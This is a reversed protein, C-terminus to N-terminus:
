RLSEEAAVAARQKFERWVSDPIPEHPRFEEIAFSRRILTRADDLGDIEGLAIMQACLNGLASAEVPGASVPLQCANACLRNLFRNQSGGGVIRIRTLRRGRLSELEEKVQRYSLALSEYACRVCEAASEPRPQGSEACYARMARRMSAPNLFRADDPNVISRWPAASEALAVLADGDAIAFEQCLRQVIWLGMINKLVRFRRGFGGENSFNMARAEESAYPLLCEIGMLSWSGSSIFAEDASEFPTGAVASATDHTAPVVVKASSAGCRTEGLVTGADVPPLMLIKEVGAAAFLDKEWEGQLSFMQTTTANTYENSLVGCLRYHLYDPIMLLHNARRLQEPEQEAMAALQYLTNFPQFQIGTRRYIERAPIRATVREIMGQTRPDRYCIAGGVQRQNEDLLVYDVAWSDVGVSAVPALTSAAEIGKQIEELIADIPWCLRGSQPDAAFATPFRKVECLSLREDTIQGAVVRGSGAGLDAAVCCFQPKMKSAVGMM